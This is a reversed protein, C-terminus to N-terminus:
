VRKRIVGKRKAIRKANRERIKTLMRTLRANSEPTNQGRFSQDTVANYVRIAEAEKGELAKQRMINSLLIIRSVRTKKFASRNISANIGKKRLKEQLPIIHAAGVICPVKQQRVLRLTDQIVRVM